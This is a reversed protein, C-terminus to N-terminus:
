FIRLIQEESVIFVRHMMVLLWSIKQTGSLALVIRHQLSNTDQYEDIMIYRYQAQLQNRVTQNTELLTLLYVLLDDYDLMNQKRKYAIYARFLEQIKDTEDIFQPYSSRLIEQIPLCKNVSLSYM